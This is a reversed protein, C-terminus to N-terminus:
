FEHSSGPWPHVTSPAGTSSLGTPTGRRSGRSDRHRCRADLRDLSRCISAVSRGTGHFAPIRGLTRHPTPALASALDEAGRYLALVAWGGPRLAERVRGVASELVRPPLFPGPLFVLDYANLDALDEVLQHRLEIRDTLGAAAVNRRALVLAPDWSDIGVAKLTPWVRCMAVTLGAVGVGVDLFTADPGELRGGLGDLAPVVTEGFVGAFAASTQGQSELLEADTYSWGPERAPDNLLDLAQLFLARVPSLATGLEAPTAAALTEELGLAHVVEALCAEVESSAETGSMRLRLVAGLAALAEASSGLKTVLDRLPDASM